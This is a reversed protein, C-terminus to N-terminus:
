STLVNPLNVVVITILKTGVERVVTINGDREHAFSLVRELWTISPQPIIRQANWGVKHDNTFPKRVIMETCPRSVFGFHFQSVSMRM